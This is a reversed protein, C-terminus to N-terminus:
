RNPLQADKQQDLFFMSFGRDSVSNPSIHWLFGFVLDLSIWFSTRGLQFLTESSSVFIGFMVLVSAWYSTLFLEVAHEFRSWVSGLWFCFVISMYIYIYMHIYVRFCQCLSTRECICFLTRFLNSFLGVRPSVSCLLTDLGIVSLTVCINLSIHCINWVYGLVLSLM